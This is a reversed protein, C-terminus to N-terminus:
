LFNIVASYVMEVNLEKICKFKVDNRYCILPKPSYFFCPACELNLSVIKHGTNWPHIYAPNTPGIISVANRKMASATHMLSSDNTVFVDSRKIVAATEALSETDVVFANASNIQLFINEKLEKEEPGGFILIKANKEEILKRALEAFKEPEWRRKIHNKLTACGPHMGIVLDDKYININELFNEAFIIDNETLPFELSPEEDLEVGLLKEIMLINTQVNHLYDREPIRINNLWGFNQSDNRIYKVGVRKKAGIFYNIINYEKRNSPYVNISADFKNRLSRIFKLSSAAGEKLFDFHIVEKLNPNREYIDEVGKFMVLATIESDPLTRKLLKLAPTFMLADGIGSLALVLIKM